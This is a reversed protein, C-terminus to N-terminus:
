ESKCNRLKEEDDDDYPERDSKERSAESHDIGPAFVGRKSLELLCHYEEVVLGDHVLNEVTHLKVQLLTLVPDTDHPWVVAHRLVKCAM